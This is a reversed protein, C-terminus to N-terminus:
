LVRGGDKGLRIKKHRAQFFHMEWLGAQGLMNTLYWVEQPNAKFIFLCVHSTGDKQGLGSIRWPSIGRYQLQAVHARGRLLHIFKQHFEPDEWLARILPGHAFTFSTMTESWALNQKYWGRGVGIGPSIRDSIVCRYPVYVYMGEYGRGCVFSPGWLCCWVCICWPLSELKCRYSCTQKWRVM